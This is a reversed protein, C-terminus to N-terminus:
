EGILRREWEGVKQMDDFWYERLLPLIESNIVDAYWASTAGQDTIGTCFFSHGICFGPGLNVRDNAIEQNLSTLDRVIRSILADNARKKELFEAFQPTQFGPAIDVFAFRRRLAYDVMALSRDATNMLGLIHVNEPVFFPADDVDSYALPIAWELGRKDVEILMMLEGFVKSLNSRNIEDIIFVFQKDPTAMAQTCFRHFPGNRRSFGNGTPRYGQVFDEYSYSAHFQVMGVRSPDDSNMLAYALRRAFYTKGVGPPGQLILNKKARLREVMSVFDAGDVFLGDMARAISYGDDSGDADGYNSSQDQAAFSVGPPAMPPRDPRAAPQLREWLERLPAVYYDLAHTGYEAEMKSRVERLVRDVEVPSQHRLASIPQGSFEAAIVLRDGQGFIREFEDPFLLFLLMHRLQRASSDPISQLWQAFQWGDALLASREAAGLRKFALGVKIFFVLERWRQTNYATGASGIGALVKDSLLERATEPMAERSWSWIENVNERKKQPGTNSPCLLMVWTMEAALQKVSPDTPALQSQLKENFNGTGADLNNVFYQDLAELGQITWLAKGTFVSGDERLAADRWITAAHLIASSDKEGCYRSM